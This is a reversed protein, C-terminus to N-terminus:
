FKLQLPRVVVENPGWRSVPARTNNVMDFGTHGQWGLSKLGDSELAINNWFARTYIANNALKVLVSQEYPDQLVVAGGEEFNYYEAVPEDSSPFYDRCFEPFLLCAHAFCQM